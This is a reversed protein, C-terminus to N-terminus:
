EALLPLATASLLRPSTCSSGIPPTEKGSQGGKVPQQCWHQILTVDGVAAGSLDCCQCEQSCPSIRQLRAVSAIQMVRLHSCKKASARHFECSKQERRDLTLGAQQQSQPKYLLKYEAGATITQKQESSSLYRWFFLHLTSSSLVASTQKERM